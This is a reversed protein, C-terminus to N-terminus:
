FKHLFTYLNMMSVELLVFINIIIQMTFSVAHVSSPDELWTNYMDEIYQSSHSNPFQEVNTSASYFRTQLHLVNKKLKVNAYLKWKSSKMVTELLIKARYM